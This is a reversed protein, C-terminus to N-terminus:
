QYIEFDLNLDSHVMAMSMLYDHKYTPQSYKAFSSHNVQIILIAIASNGNDDDIACPLSGDDVRPCLFNAQIPKLEKDTCFIM